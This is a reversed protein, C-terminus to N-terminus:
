VLLRVDYRSRRVMRIATYLIDRGPAQQEAAASRDDITTKAGTFEVGVGAKHPSVAPPDNLSHRKFGVSECRKRLYQQACSMLTILHRFNGHHQLRPGNSNRLHLDGLGDSGM